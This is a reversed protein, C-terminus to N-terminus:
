YKFEFFKDEGLFFGICVINCKKEVERRGIEKWYKKIRREMLGLVLVVM